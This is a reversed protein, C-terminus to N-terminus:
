ISVLKVEQLASDDFNVGHKLLSFEDDLTEKLSTDYVVPSEEHFILTRQVQTESHSTDQLSQASLSHLVDALLIVM